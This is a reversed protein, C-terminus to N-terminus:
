QKHKLISIGLKGINYLLPNAIHIFRGYEVLVGGFKEKFDRVGYSDEPKGAGMMDFRSIGNEYAYKIGSFTALTSPHINKYQGDIGCAFWEYVVKNELVVCVSGGIIKENLEILLFRSFPQHYLQKFFAIPFLPTKVKKTYLENLIEHYDCIQDITPADVYSAGDRLSTKIDRKRSKGLHQNVIDESSCDVHFNLHPVYEFGSKSFIEKYASYDNLNRFEVYIARKRLQSKCHTLLERLAESSIDDALLAGGIVIARKSFFQKLKGGDKQIYGVIVGKLVNNDTVGFVFPELFSLSAYFDYCEKTQFFNATSSNAVLEKWAVPDITNNTTIM